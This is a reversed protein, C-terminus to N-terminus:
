STWGGSFPIIEGHLFDSDGSALFLALAASEWSQAARGAPVERMKEAFEDSRMIEPTYSSPNAVFNQAIANVNIGHAAVEVGVNKVYALQAGRAAGYASRPTTGRLANASGMVIIKGGRREIMQPLVSRFLRHLPDVMTSFMRLWVDDPTEAAQHRQNRFMLNAVLVDVRGATAVISDAIDPQDLDDTDGIVEAGELAFMEAIAPGMFADAQTVVVRKGLLRRKMKIVKLWDLLM